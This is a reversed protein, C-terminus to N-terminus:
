PGRLTNGCIVKKTIRVVEPPSYRRESVGVNDDKGSPSYTRVIQGYDAAGGFTREIAEVYAKLADTSLQDWNTIRSSFDRPFANATQSDRKRVRFCQVLKTETDIAM